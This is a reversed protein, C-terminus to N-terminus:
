ARAIRAKAPVKTKWPDKRGEGLAANLEGVVVDGTSAMLVDVAPLKEYDSSWSRQLYDSMTIHIVKADDPVFSSITPPPLVSNM